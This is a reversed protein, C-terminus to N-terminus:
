RCAPSRAPDWGAGAADARTRDRNRCSVDGSCCSSPSRTAPPLVRRRHRRRQRPLDCARAAAQCPAARSAGRRITATHFSTSTAWRGPACSCPVATPRCCWCSRERCATSRASSASRVPKAPALRAAPGAPVDAATAGTRTVAAREAAPPAAPASPTEVALRSLSALAQLDAAAPSRTRRRAPPAASPNRLDRSGRSCIARAPGSESSRPREGGAPRAPGDGERARASAM